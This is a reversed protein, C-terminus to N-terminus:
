LFLVRYCSVKLESRPSYIAHIAHIYIAWVRGDGLLVFGLGGLFPDEAVFSVYGSLIHRLWLPVRWFWSVLSFMIAWTEKGKYGLFFILIAGLVFCRIFSFM